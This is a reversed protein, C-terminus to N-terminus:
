ILIYANLGTYDYIYWACIPVYMNPVYEKIGYIYTLTQEASTSHVFQYLCKILDVAQM